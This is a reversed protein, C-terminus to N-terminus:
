LKQVAVTNTRHRSDPDAARVSRGNGGGGASSRVMFSNWLIMVSVRKQGAAAPAAASAIDRAFDGPASTDGDEVSAM